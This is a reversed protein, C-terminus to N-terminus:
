LVGAAILSRAVRVRADPALRLLPALRAAPRAAARRPGIGAVLELVVEGWTRRPHYRGYLHWPSLVTHTAVHPMVVPITSGPRWIMESERFVQRTDYGAYLERARYFRREVVMSEREVGYRVVGMHLKPPQARWMGLTLLRCLPTIFPIVMRDLRVCRMSFEVMSQRLQKDLQDMHQSILYVDWGLKRSHLFWDLVTNREKDGWQRANLFSACEDLVLVGNDKEEIGEQGRGLMDLDSRLPKDPLRTFTVRLERPLMREPWLDLNTAVRKGGKLADRIVGVCVLSKGSGLKGGVLYFSM